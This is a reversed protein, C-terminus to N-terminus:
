KSEMLHGVGSWPSAVILELAARGALSDLGLERITAAASLVEQIALLPRRENGPLLRIREITSRSHVWSLVESRVFKSDSM